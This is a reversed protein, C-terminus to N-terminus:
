QSAGTSKAIAVNLKEIAWLMEPEINLLALQCAELLEPAAAILRANALAHQYVSIDTQHFAEAIVQGAAIIGYDGGPHRTPGNDVSATSPGKIAWPGPTHTALQTPNITM